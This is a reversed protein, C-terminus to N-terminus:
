SSSRLHSTPFASSCTVLRRLCRQLVTIIGNRDELDNDDGSAVLHTTPNIKLSFFTQPAETMLSCATPTTTQGFIAFSWSPLWGHNDNGYQRSRGVLRHNHPHMNSHVLHIKCENPQVHSKQGFFGGGGRPSPQWRTGGNTAVLTISRTHKHTHTIEHTHTNTPYQTYLQLKALIIM